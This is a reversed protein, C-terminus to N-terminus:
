TISMKQVNLFANERLELKMVKPVPSRLVSEMIIFLVLQALLRASEKLFYQIDKVSVANFYLFFSTVLLSLTLM